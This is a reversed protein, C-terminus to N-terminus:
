IPIDFVLEQGNKSLQIGIDKSGQLLWGQEMFQNVALLTFPKNPAYRSRTVLAKLKDNGYQDTFMCNLDYIMVAQLDRGSADHTAQENNGYTTKIVNTAGRKSGSLDTTSGTDAVAITDNLLL